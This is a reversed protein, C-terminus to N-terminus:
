RGPILYIIMYDKEGPANYASLKLYFIWMKWAVMKMNTVYPPTNLKQTTKM